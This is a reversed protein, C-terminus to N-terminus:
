VSGTPVIQYFRNPLKFLRNLFFWDIYATSWVIRTSYYTSVEARSLINLRLVASTKDASDACLSQSRWGIDLANDYVLIL